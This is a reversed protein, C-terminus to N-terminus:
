PGKQPAKRGTGTNRCGRREKGPEKRNAESPRRAPEAVEDRECEPVSRLGASVQEEQRRAVRRGVRRPRLWVRLQRVMGHAGDDRVIERARAEGDGEAEEEGDGVEDPEEQPREDDEYDCEEDPEKCEHEAPQGGRQV